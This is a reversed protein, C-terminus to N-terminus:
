IIVKILREKPLVVNQGDYTCITETNVVYVGNCKLYIGVQFGGSYIYKEDVVEM